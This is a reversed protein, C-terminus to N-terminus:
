ESWVKKVYDLINNIKSLNWSLEPLTKYRCIFKVVYNVNKMSKDNSLLGMEGYRLRINDRFTKVRLM